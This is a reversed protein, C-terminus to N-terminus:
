ASTCPWPAGCVDAFTKKQAPSFKSLDVHVGGSAFVVLCALVQSMCSQQSLHQCRSTSGAPASCLKGTKSWRFLLCSRFMCSMCHLVFVHTGGQQAIKRSPRQVVQQVAPCRQQCRPEALGSCSCPLAICSLLCSVHAVVHLGPRWLFKGLLEQRCPRLHVVIVCCSHLVCSLVTCFVVHRSAHVEEHIPM